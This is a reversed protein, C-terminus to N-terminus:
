ALGLSLRLVFLPAGLLPALLLSWGAQRKCPRRWLLRVGPAHWEGPAHWVLRSAIGLPSATGPYTLPM